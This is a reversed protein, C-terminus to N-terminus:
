SAGTYTKLHHKKKIYVVIQEAASDEGSEPDRSSLLIDLRKDDESNNLLWYFSFSGDDAVTTDIERATRNNLTLWLTAGPMATGQFLIYATAIEAGNSPSSITPRDLVTDAAAPQLTGFGFIATAIIGIGISYLMNQHKFFTM